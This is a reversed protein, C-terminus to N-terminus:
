PRGCYPGLRRAGHSTPSSRTLICERPATVRSRRSVGPAFFTSSVFFTINAKWTENYEKNAQINESFTRLCSPARPGLSMSHPSLSFTIRVMYVIQKDPKPHEGRVEQKMMQKKLAVFGPHRKELEKPPYYCNMEKYWDIEKELDDTGRGGMGHENMYDEVMLKKIMKRAESMPVGPPCIGQAQLAADSTADMADQVQQEFRSEATQVMEKFEPNLGPMAMVSEHLALPSMYEHHELIGKVTKKSEAELWYDMAAVVSPVSGPDFYIWSPMDSLNYLLRERIDEIKAM